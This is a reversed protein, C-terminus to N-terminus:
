GFVSLSRTREGSRFVIGVVDYQVFGVSCKGIKPTFKRIGFRRDGFAGFPQLMEGM